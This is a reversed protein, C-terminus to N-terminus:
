LGGRRPLRVRGLLGVVEAPCNAGGPHARLGTVRADAFAARARAVEHRLVEPPM